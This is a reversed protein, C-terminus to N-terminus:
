LIWLILLTNSISPFFIFLYIFFSFFQKRDVIVNLEIIIYLKSFFVTIRPFLQDGIKIIIIIREVQKGGERKQLKREQCFHVNCSYSSNNFSWRFIEDLIRNGSGSVLGFELIVFDIGDWIWTEFDCVCLFEDECPNAYECKTRQSWRSWRQIIWWARSIPHNDIIPSPSSFFLLLSFPSPNLWRRRKRSKSRLRAEGRCIRSDSVKTGEGYRFTCSRTFRSRSNGRRAEGRRGGGRHRSVRPSSSWSATFTGNAAAAVPSFLFTSGHGFRTHLARQGATRWSKWNGPWGYVAFGWQRRVVFWKSEKGDVLSCSLGVEIRWM